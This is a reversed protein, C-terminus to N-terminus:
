AVLVSKPTWMQISGFKTGFSVLEAKETERVVTLSEAATFVADAESQTLNNTIIWAPVGYVNNARKPTTLREAATLIAVEGFRKKDYAKVQRWVEKLALSMAIRYDGVESVIEKAIKNAAKMMQKKSM